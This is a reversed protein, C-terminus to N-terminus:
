DSRMNFIYFEISYFNLVGVPNNKRRRVLTRLAARIEDDRGYVPDLEGRAALDTLDVGVDSRFCIM